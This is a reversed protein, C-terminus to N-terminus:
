TSHFQGFKFGQENLPDKATLSIHSFQQIRGFAWFSHHRQLRGDERDYCFAVSDGYSIWEGTNWVAVLTAFSGEDYFKNLLM